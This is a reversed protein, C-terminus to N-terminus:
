YKFITEFQELCYNFYQTQLLSNKREFKFLCEGLWFKTETFWHKELKYLRWCKKAPAWAPPYIDRWAKGSAPIPSASNWGKIEVNGQHDLSSMTCRLLENTCVLLHSGQRPLQDAPSFQLNFLLSLLSQSHATRSWFTNLHSHASLM